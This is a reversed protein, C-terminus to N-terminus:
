DKGQDSFSSSSFQNQLAQRNIYFEHELEALKKQYEADTDASIPGSPSLSATSFKKFVAQTVKTNFEYIPQIKEIQEQCDYVEDQMKRSHHQAIRAAELEAGTAKRSKLYSIFIKRFEKPPVAVGSEREFLDTIRQCWDSHNLPQCDSAGRFFFEHDIPRFCTRGWTLWEEIYQYLCKGGPFLTNPMPAWYTGYKKSTKYDGIELHIFWRAQSPNELKDVPIFSRGDAVGFVFTKGLELEYYTRSRDPPILITFAASLLLQLDTALAYPTRKKKEYGKKCRKSRSVTMKTEYRIRLQELVEICREWPLSKIHQPVSKPLSKSEKEYQKRLRSLERLIPISSSDPHDKTGIEKRYLFRSVLVFIDIYKLNSDPKVDLWNLYAQIREMDQSCILNAKEELLVRQLAFDKYTSLDLDKETVTMLDLGPPLFNLLSSSLKMYTIISTLRLDALPFSQCRHLWGLIQRIKAEEDKRTGKSNARRYQALERFDQELELNIYDDPYVQVTEKVNQTKTAKMAMLAYPKKKKQGYRNTHHRGNKNHWDKRAEGSANHFLNFQICDEPGIDNSTQTNLLGWENLKALFKNLVNRAKRANDQEDNEFTAEVIEILPHFEHVSLLKLYNLALKQENSNARKGNPMPGGKSPVFRRILLSKLSRAQQSSNNGEDCYDMYQTYADHCSHM